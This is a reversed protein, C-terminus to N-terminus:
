YKHTVEELTIRAGIVKPTFMRGRAMDRMHHRDGYKSKRQEVRIVKIDEKMSGRMRDGGLSKDMMSKIEEYHNDLLNEVGFHLDMSIDGLHLSELKVWKYDDNELEAPNGM